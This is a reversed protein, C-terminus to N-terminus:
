PGSRASWCRCIVAANKATWTADPDSIRTRNPNAHTRVTTSDVAVTQGFGPLLEAVQDTLDALCEDVLELHDRLLAFFRGFTTRHPLRRRFGCLHRLENDSRLTRVLASTHPLNLVYSLLYARWLKDLPYGRPGRSLVREATLDGLLPGFDVADLIEALREIRNPEPEQATKTRGTAKKLRM